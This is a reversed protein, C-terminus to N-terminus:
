ISSASRSRSAPRAMGKAVIPCVLRMLGGPLSQDRWGAFAAAQRRDRLGEPLQSWLSLADLVQPWTAGLAPAIVQAIPKLRKDQVIVTKGTVEFMAQALNELGGGEVSLRALMQYVRAGREVLYAQRNVILELAAQQIDRVSAAEPLAIIPLDAGAPLSASAPVAVGAVGKAAWAALEKKGPSDGCLVFDGAEPTIGAGAMIVWKVARDRFQPVPPPTGPPFTLRVLEGLSVQTTTAAM